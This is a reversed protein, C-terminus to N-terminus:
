LEVKGLLYKQLRLLDVITVSGDGNVDAGYKEPGDLNVKGLLYKQLRLLDVITVGDKGNLDGHVSLTYTMKGSVPTEITIFNGTSINGNNISGDINYVTASANPSVNKIKNILSQGTESVNIDFLYSSNNKVGINNIVDEVRTTDSVKKIYLKYTRSEGNEATVKINVETIENDLAVNGDGEVTSTVSVDASINISTLTDQVPVVYELVDKDFGSITRGDIRLNNIFNNNDLLTVQYTEYPMNAYVPINFTYEYDLANAKELKEKINHAEAYPAFIYTMYQHTYMSTQAKPNTQFKEFYLTNQGKDIYGNAIFQAGGKIALERTVWPRFYTTGKSAFCLGDYVSKNAGINYFNYYGSRTVGECTFTTTGNVAEYDSRSAGEQVSRSILHVPSVKYEKGASIYNEVYNKLFSEGALATVTNRIITEDETEPDYGLYEFIFISKENLYNRPDLLYANVTNNSTYYNKGERVVNSSTYIDRYTSLQIYNKGEEGKVIDNFSVDINVPDFKWNPHKSHLYSLYPCYTDNFGKAKLENCYQDDQLKLESDKFVFKIPVYGTINGGISVKYFSGSTELITVKTGYILGINGISDTVASAKDSPTTRLTAFDAIITAQELGFVRAKFTLFSLMVLFVFIQFKACKKM